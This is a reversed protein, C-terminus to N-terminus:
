RVFDGLEGALDPIGVEADFDGLVTNVDEIAFDM